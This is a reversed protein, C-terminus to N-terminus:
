VRPWFALVSLWASWIGCAMLWRTNGARIKKQPVHNFVFGIKKEIANIIKDSRNQYEKHVDAIFLWAILFMSSVIAMLLLQMTTLVSGKALVAFPAVSLPVLIAATTWIRNNDSLFRSQYHKYIEKLWEESEPLIEHGGDSIEEKTEQEKKKM